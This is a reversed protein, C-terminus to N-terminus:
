TAKPLPLSHRQAYRVACHFLQAEPMLDWDPHQDILSRVAKPSSGKCIKQYIFKDRADTRSDVRDPKSVPFQDGFAIGRARLLEECSEVLNAKDRDKGSQALEAAARAVVILLERHPPPLGDSWQIPRVDLEASPTEWEPYILWELLRRASQQDSDNSKKNQILGQFLAQVRRDLEGLEDPGIMTM